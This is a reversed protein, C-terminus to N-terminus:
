LLTRCALHNINSQIPSNSDRLLQRYDELVQVTVDLEASM